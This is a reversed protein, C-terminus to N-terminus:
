WTISVQVDGSIDNAARAVLRQNLVLVATLTIDNSQGASLALTQMNLDNQNTADRQAVEITAPERETWGVVAIALTSALMQGTDALVTGKMANSIRGQTAWGM